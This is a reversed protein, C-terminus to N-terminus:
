ASTWFITNSTTCASQRKWEFRLRLRFISSELRSRRQSLPKFDKFAAPKNARCLAVVHRIYVSTFIQSNHAEEPEHETFFHFSSFVERHAATSSGHESAQHYIPDLPCSLFRNFSAQSPTRIYKSASSALPSHRQYTKIESDSQTTKWKTQACATASQCHDKRENEGPCLPWPKSSM